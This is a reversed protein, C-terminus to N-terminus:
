EKAKRRNRYYFQRQCFVDCYKQNKKENPKFPNGCYKCIQWGGPIGKDETREPKTDGQLAMWQGYSMGNQTALVAMRSLNDM